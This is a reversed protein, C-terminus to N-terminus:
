NTYIIDVSDILVKQLDINKERLSIIIHEYILRKDKTIELPVEGLDISFGESFHVSVIM